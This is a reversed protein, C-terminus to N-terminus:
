VRVFKSNQGRKPSITDLGPNRTNARNGVIAGRNGVIAWSQGRNGVIAGRNGVIAWSQGRNGVIAGRNGVIAWSQVFDGLIALTAMFDLMENNKPGVLRFAAYYESRLGLLGRQM